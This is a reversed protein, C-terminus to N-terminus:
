RLSADSHSAHRGQPEPRVLAAAIAATSLTTDRRSQWMQQAQDIADRRIAFQALPARSNKTSGPLRSAFRADHDIAFYVDFVAVANILNGIRGVRTEADFLARAASECDGAGHELQADAALTVMLASLEARVIDPIEDFFTVLDDLISASVVGEKTSGGEGTCCLVNVLAYQKSLAIYSAINRGALAHSATRDDELQKSACIREM